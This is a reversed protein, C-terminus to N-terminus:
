LEGLSREVMEQIVLRPRRRELEATPFDYSWIWIADTFHEALFPILLECFSDRLVVVSPITGRPSRTRRADTRPVEYKAVTLGDGDWDRAAALPNTTFCHTEEMDEELALMRALELGRSTERRISLGEWPIPHIGPFFRSLHEVIARSAAFAGCDNWHTGTKDYLLGGAKAGLLSPRLDLITVQNSTNVACLLQDLRAPNDRPVLGSPMMEPYITHKDPAIVVLYIMGRETCWNQRRVFETRVRELEEATFPKERLYSEISGESALFLFGSNGLLVKASSSTRLLKVRILGNLRLLSSRLGYNEDLFNRFGQADQIRTRWAAVGMRSQWGQAKPAVPTPQSAQALGRGMDALTALLPLWILMTFVLVLFWDLWAPWRNEEIHPFLEM